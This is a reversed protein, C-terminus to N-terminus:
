FLNIEGTDTSSAPRVSEKSIPTSDVEVETLKLKAEKLLVESHEVLKQGEKHLKMVEHLPLQNNEIEAVIAQIRELAQELHM